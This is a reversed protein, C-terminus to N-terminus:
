TVQTISKREDDIPVSDIGLRAVSEDICETAFDMSDSVGNWFEAVDEIARHWEDIPVFM